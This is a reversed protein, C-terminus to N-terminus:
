CNKTIKNDIPLSIIYGFGNFVIKRRCFSPIVLFIGKPSAWLTTFKLILFKGLLVGLIRTLFSLFVVKLKFLFNTCPVGPDGPVGSLERCGCFSYGELSGLSVTSNEVGM